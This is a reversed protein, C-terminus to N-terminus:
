PPPFGNESKFSGISLGNSVPLNDGAITTTRESPNAAAAM